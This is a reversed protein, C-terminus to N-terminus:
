TYQRLVMSALSLHLSESTSESPRYHSMYTLHDVGERREQDIHQTQPPQQFSRHDYTATPQHQHYRFPDESEDQHRPSYPHSQPPPYPYLQTHTEHQGPDITAPLSVPPLQDELEIAPSKIRPIKSKRKRGSPTPVESTPEVSVELRTTSPAATATSQPPQRQRPQRKSNNTGTRTSTNDLDTTSSHLNYDDVILDVKGVKVSTGTNTDKVRVLHDDDGDKMATTTTSVKGKRKSPM